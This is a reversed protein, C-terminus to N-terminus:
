PLSWLRRLSWEGILLGLCIGLLWTESWLPRREMVLRFSRDRESLEQLLAGLREPPVLRGRSETALKELAPVNASSWALEGAPVNLAIASERMAAGKEFQARIRYVGPAALTPSAGASGGPGITLETRLTPTEQGDPAIRDIDVGIVDGEAPTLDERMAGLRIELPENAGHARVALQFRDFEGGSGAWRALRPVLRIFAEEKGSDVGLPQFRWSWLPGASLVGVRGQGYRQISLFPEDRGEVSVQLLVEASSRPEAGVLAWQLPPLGSLAGSGGPLDQLFGLLPHTKKGSVPLVSFSGRRVGLGRDRLPLLPLVKSRGLRSPDDDEPLILLGGGAQVYGPLEDEVWHLAGSGVVVLASYLRLPSILEPGGSAGDGRVLRGGAVEVARTVELGAEAELQRGLFAEEFGPHAALLLIPRRSPVASAALYSVGEIGPTEGSPAEPKRVVVQFQVLGPSRPVAQFEFPAVESDGEFTVQQDALRTSGEWLEVTASRLAPDSRTVRGRIALPLNPEVTSALGDAEIGLGPATPPGLTVAYVPLSSRGIPSDTARGDSLLVVAKLDAGGEKAELAGLAEYMRSMGGAAALGRVLDSAFSFLEMQVPGGALRHIADLAFERRSQQGDAKMPLQMSPSTDVLLAVRPPVPDMRRSQIAPLLCLWLVAVLAGLRMGVLIARRVARQTRLARTYAVALLVGLLAAGFVGFAPTLGDFVLGDSM